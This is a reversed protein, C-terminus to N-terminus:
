KWELTSLMHKIDAEIFDIVPALSDNDPTLDFYLAGRLFHSLSDTAYFQLVSAAERGRIRFLLAHVRNSHFSVTEERIATAKPIHRHVFTYADNFYGYLDYTSHVPKYSLHIRANFDDFVIDAWYDEAHERNDPVVRAYVPYEFRYPFLSDFTNYSKEPLAIRFFGRPRPTVQENCANFVCIGASFIFILIFFRLLRVILM